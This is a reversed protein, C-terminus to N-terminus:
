KRCLKKLIEQATFYDKNKGFVAEIEELVQQLCDIAERENGARALLQGYLM